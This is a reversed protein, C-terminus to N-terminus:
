PPLNVLFVAVGGHSSCTGRLHQSFSFTGDNCLATAGAPASNAAEGGHDSCTGPGTSSSWMGDACLTVCPGGSFSVCSGTPGATTITTGPSSSVLLPSPWAGTLEGCFYIAISTIVDGPCLAWGTMPPSSFLPLNPALPYQPTASWSWPAVPWVATTPNPFQPEPAQASVKGFAVSGLCILAVLALVFRRM